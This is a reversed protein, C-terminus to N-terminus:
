SAPTARVTEISPESVGVLRAGNVVAIPAHKAVGRVNITCDRLLFFAKNNTLVDSVRLNPLSELTGSVWGSSFICSVNHRKRTSMTSPAELREGRDAPLVLTYAGQALALFPLKEELGTFSAGTLKVYGSAQNLYDVFSHMKPLVFTGQIWGMDSLVVADVDRRPVFGYSVVTSM